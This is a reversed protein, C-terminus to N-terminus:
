NIITFEIELPIVFDFDYLQKMARMAGDVLCFQAMVKFNEVDAKHVEAWVSDHVVNVLHARMNAETIHRSLLAAGMQSIDATAFMQIPYNYVSSKVPIYGSNSLRAEPWYFVLGTVTTLQKTRLVTDLWGEQMATIQKHKNKFFEYYSKQEPTGSEGGYLPKFTYPKAATRIEKREKSEMIDGFTGWTDPFIKAATIAHADVGNRIDSIGAEDRALCVAVVYELKAYDVEILVYDDGRKPIFIEKLHRPPNQLQVKYKRGSSSLRHTATVTQNFKAQLIGSDQTVCEYFKSLYKSKLDQIKVLENRLSLFEKQKNTNAALSALTVADTPLEGGKTVKPKGYSTRVPRFKLTNYILERMQPGSKPNVEGYRSRFAQQLEIERSTLSHYKEVVKDKDIGLGEKEISVLVPTLFNRAFLVNKLGRKHIEERQRLFLRHSLIVDKKCYRALWHVPINKPNVGAKILKSVTDGKHGLKRAKAISDLSLEGKINGRLVYEAIQTCWVDTSYIDHGLRDLWGLEFSSNHAILLECSSLDELLEEQVNGIAYKYVNNAGDYWFAVVVENEEVYPSGKDLNTTEFDVVIYNKTYYDPLDM